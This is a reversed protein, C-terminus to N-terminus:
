ASLLQFKLFDSPSICILFNFFSSILNKRIFKILNVRNQVKTIQSCIYKIINLIVMLYYKKFLKSGIREFQFVIWSLREYLFLLFFFYTSMSPSFHKLTAIIVWIITVHLHAWVSIGSNFCAKCKKLKRTIVSM